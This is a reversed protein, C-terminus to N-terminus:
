FYIQQTYTSSEEMPEPDHFIIDEQSLEIDPEPAFVILSDKDLDEYIMYDEQSEELMEPDYVIVNDDFAIFRNHDM